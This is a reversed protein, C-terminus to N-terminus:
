QEEYQNSQLVKMNVAGYRPQPKSSVDEWQPKSFSEFLHFKFKWFMINQFNLFNL